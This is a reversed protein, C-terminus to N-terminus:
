LPRSEIVGRPTGILTVQSDAPCPLQGRLMLGHALTWEPVELHLGRAGWGFGKSLRGGTHDTAVCGLVAAQAGDPKLKPEGHAAMKSLNAGASETLRWYWGEKKVNPVYLTIGSELALKRLPLLVRDAGVILTHLPAVHPHKLLERAAERAGSFNPHHGHPPLPYACLRARELADWVATRHAGATTPLLPSTM